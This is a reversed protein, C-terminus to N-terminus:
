ALAFAPEAYFLMKRWVSLLWEGVSRGVQRIFRTGRFRSKTLLQMAKEGESM